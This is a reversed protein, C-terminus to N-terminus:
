SRERGADGKVSNFHPLDETKEVGESREQEEKDEDSNNDEDDVCEERGEKLQQLLSGLGSHIQRTRWNTHKSKKGEVGDDNIVADINNKACDEEVSEIEGAEDKIVMQDVKEVLDVEPEKKLGCERELEEERAMDEQDQEIEPVGM